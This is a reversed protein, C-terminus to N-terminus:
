QRERYTPRIAPSKRPLSKSCRLQGSRIDPRLRAYESTVRLGLKVHLQHVFKVFWTTPGWALATTADGTLLQRLRDCMAGDLAARNSVVLGAGCPVICFVKTGLLAEALKIQIESIQEPAVVVRYKSGAGWYIASEFTSSNNASKLLNRDSISGSRLWHRFNFETTNAVSLINSM